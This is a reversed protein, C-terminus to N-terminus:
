SAASPSAALSPPPWPTQGAPWIKQGPQGPCCPMQEVPPQGPKAHRTSEPPSGGSAPASACPGVAHPVWVQPAPITHTSGHQPPFASGQVGRGSAPTHGDSVVSTGDQRPTEEPGPQWGFGHTGGGGNQMAVGGDHPPVGFQEQMGLAQGPPPQAETTEPLTCHM